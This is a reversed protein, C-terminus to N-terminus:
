EECNDAHSTSTGSCDDFAQYCGNDCRCSICGAGSPNAACQAICNSRACNASVGYCYGCAEDIGEVNDVVEDRVCERYPEDGQTALCAGAGASAAESAAAEGDYEQGVCQDPEGTYYGTSADGTTADATADEVDADVSGDPDPTSTDTTADGVSTDAGSDTTGMGDGDDDGCAAFGALCFALAYIHIKM